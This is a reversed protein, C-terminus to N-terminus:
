KLFIVAIRKIFTFFHLLKFFAYAKNTNMVKHIIRIINEIVCSTKSTSICYTSNSIVDITFCLFRDTPYFNGQEDYYGKESNANMDFLNKSKGGLISKIM